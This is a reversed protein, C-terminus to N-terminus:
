LRSTMRRVTIANARPEQPTGNKSDLAAHHYYTSREALNPLNLGDFCSQVGVDRTQLLFVSHSRYCYLIATSESVIRKPSSRLYYCNAREPTKQRLICIQDPLSALPSSGTFVIAIPIPHRSSTIFPFRVHRKHSALLLVLM